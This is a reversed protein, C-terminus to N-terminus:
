GAPSRASSATRGKSGCTSATRARPWTRTASKTALCCPRPNGARTSTRWGPRTATSPRTASPSAGSPLVDESQLFNIAKIPKEAFKSAATMLIHKSQRLVSFYNSINGLELPKFEQICKPNNEVTTIGSSGSSQSRQSITMSLLSLTQVSLRAVVQLDGELVGDVALALRVNECMYEFLSRVLDPKIPDCDFSIFLSSLFGDYSVLDSLSEMIM